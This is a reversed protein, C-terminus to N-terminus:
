DRKIKRWPSDSRPEHSYEDADLDITGGRASAAGARFGGFRTSTVVVRRKLLRWAFERVVPLFLLLGIIDTFFGPIILLIGAVLVMVGKAVEGSPDRGAEVEGRIRTMVGFGQTRLLIAGLMAAAIVLALTALVGVAEGVIVFGAIEVFPLVLLFFPLFPLRMLGAEILQQLPPDAAAPAKRSLYTHL